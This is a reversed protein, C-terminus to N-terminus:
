RRFALLAPERLPDKWHLRVRSLLDRVKPTPTLNHPDDPTPFLATNPDISLLANVFALVESGVLGRVSGGQASPPLFELGPHPETSGSLLQSLFDNPPNPSGRLGVDLAALCEEPIGCSIERAWTAGALKYAHLLWNLQAPPGTRVHEELPIQLRQRIGELAFIGKRLDVPPQRLNRYTEKTYGIVWPREPGGLAMEAYDTLRESPKEVGALFDSRFLM